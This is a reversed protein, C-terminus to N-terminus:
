VRTNEQLGIQQEQNKALVAKLKIDADETIFDNDNTEPVIRTEARTIESDIIERLFGDSDPNQWQKVEKETTSLAITQM